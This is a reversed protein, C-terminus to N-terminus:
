SCINFVTPLIGGTNRDQASPLTGGGVRRARCNVRVGSGPRFIVIPQFRCKRRPLSVAAHIQM